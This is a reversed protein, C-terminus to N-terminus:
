GFQISRGLYIYNLRLHGKEFKGRLVEWGQIKCEMTIIGHNEPFNVTWDDKHTHTHKISNRGLIGQKCKQILIANVGVNLRWATKQM